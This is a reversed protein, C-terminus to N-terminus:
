YIIDAMFYLFRFPLLGKVADWTTYSPFPSPYESPVTETAGCKYGYVISTQQDWDDGFSGSGSALPSYALTAPDCVWTFYVTMDVDHDPLGDNIQKFSQKGISTLTHPLEVEKISAQEFTQEGIATVGAQIKVCGLNDQKYLQYGPNETVSLCVADAGALVALLLPARLQMARASPARKSRALVERAVM